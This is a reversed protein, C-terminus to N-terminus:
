FWHAGGITESILSLYPGILQLGGMMLKYRTNLQVHLSWDSDPTMVKALLHPSPSRSFYTKDKWIRAMITLHLM